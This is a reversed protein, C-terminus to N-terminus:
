EAVAKSISLNMFAARSVNAANAAADIKALLSPAIGLTIVVKRERVRANQATREPADPAGAIFAAAKDHDIRPKITM